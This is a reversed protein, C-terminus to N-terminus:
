LTSHRGPCYALKAAGHEFSLDKPLMHVTNFFTSTVYNPRKPAGRLSEAEKIRAFDTSIQAFHTFVKVFDNSTSQNFFPAWLPLASM